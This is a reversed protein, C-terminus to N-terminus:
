YFTNESRVILPTGQLRRTEIAQERLMMALAFFQHNHRVGVIAVLAHSHIIALSSLVALVRPHTIFPKGIDKEHSSYVNLLAGFKQGAIPGVKKLGAVNAVKTNRSKVLQRMSHARQRVGRHLPISLQTRKTILNIEDVIWLHGFQPLKNLTRPGLILANPNCVALAHVYYVFREFEILSFQFILESFPQFGLSCVRYVLTALFVLGFYAMDCLQM